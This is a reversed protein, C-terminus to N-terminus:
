WRPAAGRAAPGRSNVRERAALERVSVFLGFLGRLGSWRNNRRGSGHDELRVHRASDEPLRSMGPRPRRVMNPVGCASAV